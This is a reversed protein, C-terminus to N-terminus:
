AVGAKEVRDLAARIVELNAASVTALPARVEDTMLQKHALMAKIPSPNSEVFAARVVPLLQFHIRAAGRFDGALAKDIM